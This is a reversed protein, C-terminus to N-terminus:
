LVKVTHTHRELNPVKWIKSAPTNAYMCVKYRTAHSAHNFAGGILTKCAVIKNAWSGREEDNARYGIIM